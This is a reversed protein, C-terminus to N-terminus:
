GNLAILVGPSMGKMKMGFKLKVKIRDILSCPPVFACAQKIHYLWPGYMYCVVTYVLYNQFSFFLFLLQKPFNPDPSIIIIVIIVLCMSCLFIAMHNSNLTLHHSCQNNSTIANRDFPFILTEKKLWSVFWGASLLRFRWIVMNGHINPHGSAFHFASVKGWLVRRSAKCPEWFRAKVLTLHTSKCPVASLFLRYKSM